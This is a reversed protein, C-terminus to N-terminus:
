RHGQEAQADPSRRVRVPLTWVGSHDAVTWGYYHGMTATFPGHEYLSIRAGPTFRRGTVLVVGGLPIHPRNM